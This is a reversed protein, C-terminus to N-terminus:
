PAWDAKSDESGPSDTLRTLETGDPRVVYLDADGDQTLSFVIWQGDPVM